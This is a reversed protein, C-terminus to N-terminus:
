YSVKIDVKKLVPNKPVAGRTERRVEDYAEDGAQLIETMAKDKFTPTSKTECNVILKNKKRRVHLRAILAMKIRKDNKAM